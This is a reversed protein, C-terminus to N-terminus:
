KGVAKGNLRTGAYITQNEWNAFQAWDEAHEAPMGVKHNRRQLRFLRSTIMLADCNVKSTVAKRWTNKM